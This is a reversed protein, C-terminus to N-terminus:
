PTGLKHQLRWFGLLTLLGGLQLCSRWTNEQLGCGLDAINLQDNHYSVPLGRWKAICREMEENTLKATTPHRTEIAVTIIDKIAIPIYSRCAIGFWKIAVSYVYWEDDSIDAEERDELETAMGRRGQWDVWRGIEAITTAFLKETFSAVELSWHMSWPWRTQIELDYFDLDFGRKVNRISRPAAKAKQKKVPRETTKHQTKGAQMGADSEGAADEMEDDWGSDHKAVAEMVETWGEEDAWRQIDPSELSLGLDFPDSEPRREDDAGLLSWLNNRGDPGYITRTEEADNENGTM